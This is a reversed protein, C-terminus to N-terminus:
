IGRPRPIKSDDVNLSTVTLTYYTSRDPHSSKTVEGRVNKAVSRGTDMITERIAAAVEDTAADLDMEKGGFNYTQGDDPSTQTYVIACLQEPSASCTQFTVSIIKDANAYAHMAVFILSMTCLM